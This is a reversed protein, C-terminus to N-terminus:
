CKKNNNNHNKNFNVYKEHGKHIFRNLIGEPIEKSIIVPLGLEKRIEEVKEESGLPFIKTEFLLTFGGRKQIIDIYNKPAYRMIFLPRIGIFDCMDLKENMEDQDIYDFTNKVECGYCVGDKGMIFDLNHKTKLWKKGNFENIDKGLLSFGKQAFGNQFLTDAIEGCAATINSQSFWEIVRQKRKIENQIYRNTKHFYFKIEGIKTKVIKSKLINGELINLANYTIWHFFSKEFYIQIQKLYLIKDKNDMFYKKITDIAKPLAPDKAPEYIYEPGLDTIDYEDYM